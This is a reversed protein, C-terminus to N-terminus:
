VVNKEITSSTTSFVPDYYSCNVLIINLNHCSSFVGFLSVVLVLVLYCLLPVVFNCLCQEQTICFFSQVYKDSKSNFIQVCYLYCINWVSSNTLHINPKLSSCKSWDSYQRYQMRLMWEILLNIMCQVTYSVVCQVTEQWVEDAHNFFHLIHLVHM